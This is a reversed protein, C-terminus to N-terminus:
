EVCWIGERWVLSLMLEAGGLACNGGGFRCWFIAQLMVRRGRRVRVVDAYEWILFNEVIVDRRYRIIRGHVGGSV